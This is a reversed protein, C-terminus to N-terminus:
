FERVKRSFDPDDGLKQAKETIRYKNKLTEFDGEGAILDLDYVLKETFGSLLIKLDFGLHIESVEEFHKALNNTCNNTFTNYFEPKDKLENVRKLMSLFMKQTKEQSTAIPYLYVDEERFNTRTKLLDADTGIVYMLEFQRFMGTITSFSEDSERRAEISFALYEGDSFEFSLFTHAVPKFDSFRSVVFYVKQLDELNFTQDFYNAVIEGQDNPRFDRINTIAIEKGNIEAFPLREQGFEWERDHSPTFFRTILITIAILGLLGYGIKSWWRRKQWWTKLKNIM